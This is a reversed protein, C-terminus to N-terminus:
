KLLCPINVLKSCRVFDPFPKFARIVMYGADLYEKPIYLENDLYTRCFQQESFDPKIEELNMASRDVTETTKGLLLPFANPRTNAGVKNLKRFEVADMGHLLFNVTRPLARIFQASGISDIAIIHVDPNKWRRLNSANATSR